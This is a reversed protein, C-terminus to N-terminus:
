LLTMQGSEWRVKKVDGALAPLNVQSTVYMSEEADKTETQPKFNWQVKLVVSGAHRDDSNADHMVEALRPLDKVLHERIEALVLDVAKEDIIQKAM